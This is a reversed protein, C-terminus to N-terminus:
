LPRTSWFNMALALNAVIPRRSFRPPRLQTASNVRASAPQAAAALWARRTTEIVRAANASMARQARDSDPTTQTM